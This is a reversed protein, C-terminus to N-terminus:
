AYVTGQIDLVTQIAGALRATFKIGALNRTNREASSLALVNPVTIQPAPQAAIINNDIAEQLVARVNSEILAVGATDFNIKRQNILTGFVRERMRTVIWTIGLQVDIYEGGIVKNEGYMVDVGSITTYWNTNKTNLNTEQTTTLSSTEVGDLGKYIWLTSGALLPAFRGAWAAEPVTDNENENFMALTQDYGLSVLAAVTGAAGTTNTVPVTGSTGATGLDSFTVVDAAVSFYLTQTNSATGRYIDYGTNGVVNAWSVTNRSTSGTTTVSQENSGVTSGNADKAVVKYYYTAAPLTGGGTTFTALAAQVPAALVPSAVKLTDQESTSWIFYKETAEIVGAVETVDSEDIADTILFLWANNSTILKNIAVTYSDSTLKKGVVIRTPRVDQSFLLLAAKYAFDEVEFGDDLLDTPNTYIRSDEAFRTHESLVAVTNLDSITIQNTQKEIVVQVVNQITAM